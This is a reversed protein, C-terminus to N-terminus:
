SSRRRPNDIPVTAALPKNSPNFSPNKDRLRNSIHTRLPSLSASDAAADM